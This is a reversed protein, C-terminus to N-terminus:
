FRNADHWNGSYTKWPTTDARIEFYTDQVEGTYLIMRTQGDKRSQVLRLLSGGPKRAEMKIDEM